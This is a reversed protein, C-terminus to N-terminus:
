RSKTSNSGTAKKNTANAIYTAITEFEGTKPNFIKEDPDLDLIKAIENVNAGGMGELVDKDKLSELKTLKEKNEKQDKEAVVEDSTKNPLVHREPHYEVNCTSMMLM